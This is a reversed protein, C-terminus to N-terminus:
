TDLQLISPRREDEAASISGDSWSCYAPDEKMKLLLSAGTVQFLRKGVWGAGFM